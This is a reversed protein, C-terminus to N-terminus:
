FITSDGSALKSPMFTLEVFPRIHRALLADYLVDVYQFNFQPHGDKDETYVGMEDNLLGHMRIYQFGIESQVTDLQAQWDARLGEEARGAGIVRLPVASHKGAVVDLDARVLRTVTAHPLGADQEGRLGGHTAVPIEQEWMPRALWTLSCGVLGGLCAVKLKLVEVQNGKGHQSVQEVDDNNLHM